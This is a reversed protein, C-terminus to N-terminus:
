ALIFVKIDGDLIDVTEFREKVGYWHQRNILAVYRLGYISFEFKVFKLIKREL